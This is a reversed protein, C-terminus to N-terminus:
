ENEKYIYLFTQDDHTIYKNLEISDQEYDNEAGVRNWWNYLKDCKIKTMQDEEIM